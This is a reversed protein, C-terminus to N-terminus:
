ITVAPEAHILAIESVARARIAALSLWATASLTGPPRQQSGRTEWTCSFGPSNLAFCAFDLFLCLSVRIWSDQPLPLPTAARWHLLISVRFLQQPLDPESLNLVMGADGKHLTHSAPRQMGPLSSLCKGPHQHLGMGSTAFSCGMQPSYALLLVETPGLNFRESEAPTEWVKSTLHGKILPTIM